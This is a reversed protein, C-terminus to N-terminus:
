HRQDQDGSKHKPKAGSLSLALAELHPFTGRRIINALLTSLFENCNFFEEEAKAVNEISFTHVGADWRRQFTVALNLVKSVAERVFSVKHHLLCRESIKALYSKHAALIQDLDLAQDLAASFELGTSYLIRTMLYNHVANVFHMLRFRLIFLRHILPLKEKLAEDAQGRDLRGLDSDETLHGINVSILLDPFRLQQLCYQARKVQLLFRFVQNYIDLAHHHIVIDVPWPVKYHLTLSDLAHIPQTAMKGTLREPEVSVIIRAAEEPYRVSLTEQLHYNLNLTDQWSEHRRIKDFLESYFDYMVDGAELLFFRRLSLLHDQLNFDTKFVTALQCCVSQCRSVIGPYLDRYLVLELPKSLNPNREIGEEVQRQGRGANDPNSAAHSIGHAILPDNFGRLSLQRQVMEAVDSSSSRPSKTRINDFTPCPTKTTDPKGTQTDKLMGHLIAPRSLQFLEGVVDQRARTLKGTAELIEMSKGALLIHSLVPQLFEPVANPVSKKVSSKRERKTKAPVSLLAGDTDDRPLTQLSFAKKWYSESKIHIEPNRRIAFEQAPDSLIGHQLWKTIFSIYPGATVTWLHWLLDLEKKDQFALCFQEKIAMHLVHLLTHVRHASLDESPGEIGQKYMTHALHLRQGWTSMLWDKFMCLTYTEDQAVVKKEEEILSNRFDQLVTALGDAFAEYTQCNYHKEVASDQVKAERLIDPLSHTRGSDEPKTDTVSSPSPDAQHDENAKPSELEKESSISPHCPKQPTCYSMPNSQVRDIFSQLQLIKSGLEALQRTIGHLSTPTLHAVQVDDRAVHCDDRRQYLFSRGAGLLMWITERIIQTETMTTRPIDSIFPESSVERECWQRTMHHTVHDSHLTSDQEGQWYQIVVSDSLEAWGTGYLKSSGPVRSPTLHYPEVQLAGERTLSQDAVSVEEEDSWEEESSDQFSKLPELGELLYGTWDFKPEAAAEHKTEREHFAANIPSNSLNLLLSLVAYHGETKSHKSKESLPSELFAKVSRDLATAKEVLSHILLKERIGSLTRTIKHSDPDLYRHFRFNSQVFQFTRRFNESGEQFQTLKKVLKRTEQEM